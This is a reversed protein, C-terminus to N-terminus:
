IGYGFALTVYLREQHSSFKTGFCLKSKMAEYKGWGEHYIIESCEASPTNTHTCISPFFKSLLHPYPVLQCSKGHWSRQYREDGLWSPIPAPFALSLSASLRQAGEGFSPFDQSYFLSELFVKHLLELANPGTM